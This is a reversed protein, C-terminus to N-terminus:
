NYKEFEFAVQMEDNSVTAYLKDKTKWYKIKNPFDIADNICTFQQESYSKMMFVTAEPEELTKVQLEWQGDNKVLTMLEQKITDKAQLTFGNGKYLSANAKHWIEFTEKGAEENDRKWKGLLWDFSETTVTAKLEDTTKEKKENSTCSAIALTVLCIVIIKKM